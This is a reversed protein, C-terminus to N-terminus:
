LQVEVIGPAKVRGYIIKKSTNNQIRILQDKTGNMNATGTTAVHLDGNNLIIKVIQGRTIMPPFDLWSREIVSGEKIAHNIKKGIIERPDLCPSSSEAIDRTAVQVLEPTLTEGKRLSSVAVSVPALAEIRGLIAMNKRVHGDVTFILSISSSTLIGPNSPIVEWSLDGTPLVFPLPLSAPIFRIEAEPLDNRRKQLFEAIISQIKEPGISIGNRHVRVVAPGNWQVSAPISLTTILHQRLNGTQLLIEQGPAPSSAIGQSGLAQALESQDDFDAIDALSVSVKEVTASPRFTVELGSCTQAFSLFLCFIFLTSRIM